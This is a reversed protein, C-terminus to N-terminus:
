STRIPKGRRSLTTTEPRCLPSWSVHFVAEGAFSDSAGVDVVDTLLVQVCDGGQLFQPSEGVRRRGQAFLVVDGPAPRNGAPMPVTASCRRGMEVDSIYCEEAPYRNM